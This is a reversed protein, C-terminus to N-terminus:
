ARARVRRTARGDVQWPRHPRCFLAVYLLAGVISGYKKSLEEDVDRKDKSETARRVMNFLDKHAPNRVIASPDVGFKATLEEIYRTQTLTVHTPSQHVEANFFETLEGLDSYGLFDHKFQEVLKEHEQKDSCVHITDDVYLGLFYFNKGTHRVFV